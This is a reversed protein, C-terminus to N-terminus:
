NSCSRFWDPTKCLQLRQQVRFSTAMDGRSQLVGLFNLIARTARGWESQYSDLPGGAMCSTPEMARVKAAIKACLRLECEVGNTGDFECEGRALAAQRERATENAEARAKREAEKRDAETVGDIYKVTRRKGQVSENWTGQRVVDGTLPDSASCPGEATVHGDGDLMKCAFPTASGTTARIQLQESNPLSRTSSVFAGGDFTADWVPSGDAAVFRGAARRGKEDYTTIEKGSGSFKTWEGIRIGIQHNGEETLNRGHGWYRYAGDMLPGDEVCDKSGGRVECHVGMYKAHCPDGDAPCPSAPAQICYAEIDHEDPSTRNQTYTHYGAIHSSPCQVMLTGNPSYVRRERLQVGTDFLDVAMRNAQDMLDSLSGIYFKGAIPSTEGAAGVKWETCAVPERELDCTLTKAGDPGFFSWSGIPGMGGRMEGTARITGGSSWARYPGNLCAQQLNFRGWAASQASSSGQPPAIGCAQVCSEINSGPPGGAKQTGPPCPRDGVLATRSAGFLGACGVLLGAVFVLRWTVTFPSWKIMTGQM